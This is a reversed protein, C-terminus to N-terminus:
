YKQKNLNKTFPKTSKQKGTPYSPWRLRARYTRLLLTGDDLKRNKIGTENNYEVDWTTLLKNFHEIAKIYFAESDILKRGIRVFSEASMCSNYRDTVERALLYALIETFLELQDKRTGVWNIPKADM